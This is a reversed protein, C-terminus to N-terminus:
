QIYPIFHNVWSNSDSWAIALVRHLASYYSYPGFLNKLKSPVNVYWLIYFKITKDIFWWCSMNCETTLAMLWKLASRNIIDSSLSHPGGARHAEDYKSYSNTKLQLIVETCLYCASKERVRFITGWYICISCESDRQRRNITWQLWILLTDKDCFCILCMLQRQLWRLSKLSLQWFNPSLSMFLCDLANNRWEFGIWVASVRASDWKFCSLITRVRINHASSLCFSVTSKRWSTLPSIISFLLVTIESMPFPWLYRRMLKLRLPFSFSPRKLVSRSM